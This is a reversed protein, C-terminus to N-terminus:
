DFMKNENFKVMLNYYFIGVGFYALFDAYNGWDLDKGMGVAYAYICFACLAASLFLFVVTGIDWAKKNDDNRFLTRGFDILSLLLFILALALTIFKNETEPFALMIISYLFFIAGLAWFIKVLISKLM